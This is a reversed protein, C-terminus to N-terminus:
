SPVSHVLIVRVEAILVVGQFIACNKQPGLHAIEKRDFIPLSRRNERCHQCTFIIGITSIAPSAEDATFCRQRSANHSKPASLNAVDDGWAHLHARTQFPPNHGPMLVSRDAYDLSDLGHFAFRCYTKSKPHPHPCRSTPPLTPM